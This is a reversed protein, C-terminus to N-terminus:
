REYYEEDEDYEIRGNEVDQYYDIDVYEYSNICADFAKKMVSHVDDSMKYLNRIDNEYFLYYDKRNTILNVIGTSDTIILDKDCPRLMVMYWDDRQDLEAWKVLDNKKIVEYVAKTVDEDLLTNVFGGVGSSRVDWSDDDYDYVYESIYYRDTPANDIIDKIEDYKDERVYYKETVSDYYDINDYFFYKFLRSDNKRYDQDYVMVAAPADKQNNDSFIMSNGYGSSLLVPVEEGTVYSWDQLSYSNMTIILQRKSSTPIDMLKYNSGRFTFSSRSDDTYVATNSKKDDLYQCSCLTVCLIGICLALATLRFFKKM